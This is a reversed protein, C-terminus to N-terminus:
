RTRTACGPSARAVTSPTADLRAKIREARGADAIRRGLRDLRSLLLITVLGIEAAVMVVGAILARNWEWWTLYAFFYWTSTVLTVLLLVVGIRRVSGGGDTAGPQDIVIVEGTSGDVEVVDGDHVTGVAGAKGVVTPVGYERALIALHSLPSGTEAVLGSLQPIVRRSARISRASSSCSAPVPTPSTPAPRRRSRPRRRGPHRRGEVGTVVAIPTGDAALRFLSPLQPAACPTPGDTRTSRSARASCPRWSTSGSTASRRSTPSARGDAALRRGLEAAARASLEHVWRVRM